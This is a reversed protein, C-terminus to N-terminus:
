RSSDLNDLGLHRWRWHLVNDVSEKGYPHFEPDFLTTFRASHYGILSAEKDYLRLYPLGKEVIYAWVDLWTWDQLPWSERIATLQRGAQIRHRRRLSEEKRLGVFVLDFGEEALRPMLLGLLHRGMVNQAKRGLRRYASSTEIRLDKAGIAKANEVIKRHLSRPIYYPGYDWHLVTVDPSFTLVL